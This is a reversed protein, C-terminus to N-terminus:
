RGQTNAGITIVRERDLHQIKAPGLTREIRAIQGLPVAAPGSGAQTPPLLMPLLALDAARMRADPRLRVVAARTHGTPALWDGADIGAFAPRLAQAVQGVTIGLRGALGRSLTVELEPKQGKTSPAIDVAGPVKKAEALVLTAAKDLADVNEGRLQVQIQK